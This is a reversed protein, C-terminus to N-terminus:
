WPMVRDATWWNHFEAQFRGSAVAPDKALIRAAEDASATKFIIIGVIVPEGEVRGAALLAGSARVTEIFATDDPRWGSANPAKELICFARAAMVDKAGPNDRKWKFYGDGIGEPGRWAHVDVTNRNAVVTPDRAAIARAAELSDAKLIFIGSITPTPDDMPGAAALIGEDAMRQINAMHQAMIAERLEVRLPIRNPNPRLFVLYYPPGEPASGASGAIAM